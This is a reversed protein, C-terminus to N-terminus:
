LGFDETLAALGDIDDGMLEQLISIENEYDEIDGNHRTGFAECGHSYFQRRADDFDVAHGEAVLEHLMDMNWPERCFKCKNDM